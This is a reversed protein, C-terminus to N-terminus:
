SQHSKILNYKMEPNRYICFFECSVAQLSHIFIAPLISGSEITFYCILAGFPLAAIAEKMGKPLHLAAYLALNITVAPWYGFAELCGFLLLGRFLYEYAALYLIWGGIAIALGSFTWNRLRLEPYMERLDKNRSNFFNLSIFFASAGIIWPWLELSSGILLGAKTTGFNFFLVAVSAPVIGLILFGSIKRLLFRFVLQSSTRDLKDPKLKELVLFYVFSSLVTAGIAFVAFLESNKMSIM